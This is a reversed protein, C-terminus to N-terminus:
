CFSRATASRAVSSSSATTLWGHIGRARAVERARADIALRRLGPRTGSDSRCVDRAWDGKVAGSVLGRVFYRQGFLYFAVIPLTALTLGSMIVPVDPQLPEPLRQNRGTPGLFRAGSTILRLPGGAIHADIATLLTMGERWPLKKWPSEM